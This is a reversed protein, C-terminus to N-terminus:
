NGRITILEVTFVTYLIFVNQTGLVLYLLVIFMNFHVSVTPYSRSLRMVCWHKRFHVFQVTTEEKCYITFLLVSGCEVRKNTSNLFLAVNSLYKM